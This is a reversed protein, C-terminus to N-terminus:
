PTGFLIDNNKSDYGPVPYGASHPPIAKVGYGLCPATIASGTETQWWHNLVPVGFVRESWQQFSFMLYMFILWVVCRYLRVTYYYNGHQLAFNPISM